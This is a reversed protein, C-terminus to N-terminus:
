RDTRFPVAPLGASNYLTCEPNNAWAYRVAVPAPVKESWVHVTKGVIKAQAWVYKGDAGRIAFGKLADGKVVLGKALHTFTLEAVGGTVTMARFLPGSYPLKKHYALALANYALRLGVEQKNKPHIDRDDGIDIALALGVNPLATTTLTQAERLEAWSSEEPATGRAMFNALQVILFAFDGQGWRTRWDSIMTPLLTQYQKARGANSEGQYWIAGQLAFPILPHIMANYLVSPVNPTTPNQPLAPLLFEPFYRWDGALSLRTPDSGDAVEAYMTAAQAGWLGGQGVADIVRVAVVNAGAKVLNGPVRYERPINWFDTESKRSNGKGGVLTGNFWTDDVEDIPGPRLILEKGAWAAPVTLTKRFWVIGDAGPMGKEEWNGPLSMTKWAQDNLAPAALKGAGALDDEMAYMTECAQKRENMKRDFAVMAQKLSENTTGLADLAPTFEPLKARLADASTWAEAITGGWSTNILGVPVHLQQRLHRGFFYGAASFGGVTDPSCVKWEGSCDSLPGKATVNPVTFLRIHPDTAAAIEQRANASSSVSMQMNSQGSCIWVEGLLLDTLTLVNTGAVTMTLGSQKAPARRARLRVLWRGDAGAVTKRTQGAFTVTVVEGPQATGWVPLPKNQQLVMHSSFIHPLAVEALAASGLLAAAALLVLGRRVPRAAFEYTFM